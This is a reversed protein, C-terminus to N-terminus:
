SEIGSLLMISSGEPLGFDNSYPVSASQQYDQIPPPAQPLEMRVQTKLAELIDDASQSFM